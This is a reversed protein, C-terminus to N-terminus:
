KLHTQFTASLLFFGHSSRPLRSGAAMRNVSSRKCSDVLRDPHKRRTIKMYKYGYSNMRLQHLSKDLKMIYHLTHFIEKICMESKKKHCVHM